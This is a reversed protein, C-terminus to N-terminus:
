KRVLAAQVVSTFLERGVPGLARHLLGTRRIPVLRLQAFKFSSNRVIEIFRKISMRNLGGEVDEFRVAGDSRYRGRVKLIVHEAFLVHVWPLQTMFQLHSGYPHWWPPGFAIVITGGPQLYREMDRLVRDPESYHEFADISIIIDAARQFRSMDETTVNLFLCRDSVGETAARGRAVDLVSHRIDVGVVLKAGSKALEVTDGGYGCGFEMIVKGDLDKESLSFGIHSWVTSAKEPEQQGSVAPTLFSSLLAEGVTGGILGM